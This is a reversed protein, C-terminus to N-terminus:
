GGQTRNLKDELIEVRLPIHKLKDLDQQMEHMHRSGDSVKSDVAKIMLDFKDEMKKFHKGVTVKLVLWAGFFSVVQASFNDPLVEKLFIFLPSTIIETLM